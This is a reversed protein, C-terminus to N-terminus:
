SERGRELFREEMLRVAEDQQYQHIRQAVGNDTLSCGPGGWGDHSSPLNGCEPCHGAEMRALAIPNEYRQAM